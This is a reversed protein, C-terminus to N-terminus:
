MQVNILEDSYRGSSMSLQVDSFSIELRRSFIRLVSAAAAMGSDTSARTYDHQHFRFTRATTILLSLTEGIKKLNRSVSVLVSYWILAAPFATHANGVGSPTACIMPSFNPSRSTSSRGIGLRLWVSVGDLAM